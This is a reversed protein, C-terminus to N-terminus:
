SDQGYYTALDDSLEDILHHIFWLADHMIGNDKMFVRTIAIRARYIGHKEFNPWFRYQDIDESISPSHLIDLCSSISIRNGVEKLM